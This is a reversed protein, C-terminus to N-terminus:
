YGPAGQLEEDDEWVTGTWDAAVVHRTQGREWHGEATRTGHRLIMFEDPGHGTRTHTRILKLLDGDARLEWVHDVDDSKSSHGRAGQGRDKGFHDLRVTAIGESKLPMLTCTYLGHWTSSENEKGQVFRSVTDIFVVQAGYELVLDVMQAGGAASNLPSIEPFPVYLLNELQGPEAGFAHFREQIVRLGNEKDLYAVRVPETKDWGLFPLGAAMRWAWEQSFLSKGAKADGVLAVHEGKAMLRGALWPVEGFDTALFSSWNLHPEVSIEKLQDFGYGAELHDTLDAGKGTARGRVVKLSAAVPKLAKYVARAHALGAEDHDAIIVAHVGALQQTYEPLWKTSQSDKSAGEHNTTAVQGMKRASEVDKEGEVIYVTEGAAVARRVQPLNYLVKRADGLGPALGGETYHLITFDKGPKRRKMFLGAGLEDTYIYDAAARDCVAGFSLGLAELISRPTCGTHCYLVVPQTDGEKISLSAKGDDHAPCRAMWGQGSPRVDELLGLIEELAFGTRINDRALLYQSWSM